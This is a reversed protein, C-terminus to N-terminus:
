ESKKTKRGAPAKKGAPVRKGTAPKAAPKKPAGARTTRTKPAEGAPPRKRRSAAPAADVAAEPGAAVVPEAKPAAKKVQGAGLIDDIMVRTYRQRHGARRRYRLKARYKFIRVKPGKIEEVVHGLVQAGKLHPKGVQPSGNDALLLVKDFAVAEGAALQLRDVEIVEGSRAIYQKGGSEVIAYPM